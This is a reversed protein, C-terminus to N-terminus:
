WFNHFPFILDSKRHRILTNQLYNKYQKFTANFELTNSASIAAFDDNFLKFNPSSFETVESLSNEFQQTHVFLAKSTTASYALQENNKSINEASFYTSNNASLFIGFCYVSTLLLVKLIQGRKKM